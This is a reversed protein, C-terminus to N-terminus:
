RALMLVSWKGRRIRKRLYLGQARHAALLATLGPAEFVIRGKLGIVTDGTYVGRGVGYPAFLKNLTALIKEGPLAKGDLEVAVGDVFKLTVTLAQEPWESRPACWGRAGEGPAEDGLLCQRFGGCRRRDVGFHEAQQAPNVPRERLQGGLPKRWRTACGSGNGQSFRM